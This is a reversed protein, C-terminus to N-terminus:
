FERKGTKGLAAWGSILQRLRLEKLWKRLTRACFELGNDSRIHDPVGKIIFLDSLVHLGTERVPWLAATSLYRESSM